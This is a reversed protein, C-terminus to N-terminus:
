LVIRTTGWVYWFIETRGGSGRNTVEEDSLARRRVRTDLATNYRSLGILPNDSTRRDRVLWTAFSKIAVLYHNATNLSKGKEQLDALFAQVRSPSLDAITKFGCSEIIERCRM